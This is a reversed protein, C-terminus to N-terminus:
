LLRKKKLTKIFLISQNWFWHLNIKKKQLHHVIRAGALFLGLNYTIHGFIISSTALITKTKLPIKLLPIITIPLFWGLNSILMLLLAILTKTSIKRQRIFFM